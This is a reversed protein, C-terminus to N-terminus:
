LGRLNTLVRVQYHYSNVGAGNYRRVAYPWDCGVKARVPATPYSATPYEPTSTYVAGSGRYLPTVGAVISMTGADRVCQACARMYRPDTTAFKCLQLPGTGREAIRDSAQTGSTQGLVFHDFKGRLEGAARQVNKQPDLMVGSVEAATPPHHFLTYQGAGYGRSTIVHELSANRDAGLTIFTDTDSGRPEIFHMLGSEQMLIAILYPIPIEDSEMARFTERVKRNEGAPDKAAPLKPFRKDDLMDGICAALAEDVAGTVQGVRGRNYDIVRVPAAGDGTRSRGDNHLLDHQLARVARDTGSGFKGDVGRRLYGLARLDRQLDRVQQLSASSSGERLVLGSQRYTQPPM